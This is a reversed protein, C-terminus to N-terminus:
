SSPPYRPVEFSVPHLSFPTPALEPQPPRDPKPSRAEPSEFIAAALAGTRLHLQPPVVRGSFTAAPFQPKGPGPSASESRPLLICAAPAPNHSHASSNGPDAPPCSCPRDSPLSSGAAVPRFFPEAKHRWCAPLVSNGSGDATQRPRAPLPDPAPDPVQSTSPVARCTSEYRLRHRPRKPAAEAPTTAM